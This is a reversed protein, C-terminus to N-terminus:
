RKTSPWILRLEPILPGVGHSSGKSDGLHAFGFWSGTRVHSTLAVLKAPLGCGERTCRLTCGFEHLIASLNRVFNRKREGECPRGTLSLLFNDISTVNPANEDIGPELRLAEAMNAVFAERYGRLEATIFELAQEPAAGKDKAMRMVEELRLRVITHAAQPTVALSAHRTTSALRAVRTARLLRDARDATDAGRAILDAAGILATRLAINSDRLEAIVQMLDDLDQPVDGQELEEAESREELRRPQSLDQLGAHGDAHQAEGRCGDERDERETNAMGALGHDMVLYPDLSDCNTEETLGNGHLANCRHRTSRESGEESGRSVARPINNPPTTNSSTLQQLREEFVSVLDAATQAKNAESLAQSVFAPAEGSWNAEAVRLALTKLALTDRLAGGDRCAPRLGSLVRGGFDTIKGSSGDSTILANRHSLAGHCVDVSHAYAIAQAYDIMLRLYNVDQLRDQKLFTRIDSGPVYERVLFWVRGDKGRLEAIFHAYYRCVRDHVLKRMAELEERFRNGAGAEHFCKIAVPVAEASGSAVRGHALYVYADKLRKGM